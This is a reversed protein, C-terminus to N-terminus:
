VIEEALEVLQQALQLRERVMRVSKGWEQSVLLSSCFACGKQTLLLLLATLEQKSLKSSPALLAILVRELM